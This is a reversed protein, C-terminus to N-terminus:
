EFNHLYNVVEDFDYNAYVKLHWSDPETSKKLRGFQKLELRAVTASDAMFAIFRSSPMVDEIGFSKKKPAKMEPKPVDNTDRSLEEVIEAQQKEKTKEAEILKVVEASLRIIREDDTEISVAKSGGLGLCGQGALITLLAFILVPTKM